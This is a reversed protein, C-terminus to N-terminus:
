TNGRPALFRKGVPLVAVHSVLGSLLSRTPVPKPLMAVPMMLPMNGINHLALASTDPRPGAVLYQPLSAEPMVRDRGYLLGAGYAGLPAKALRYVELSLYRGLM